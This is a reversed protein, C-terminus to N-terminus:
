RRALARARADRGAHGRSRTTSASSPTTTSRTSPMAECRPRPATRSRRRRRSTPPRRDGLGRELVAPDEAVLAEDRRRPRRSRRGALDDGARLDVGAAEGLVVADEVVDQGLDGLGQLLGRRSPVLSAWWSWCTTRRTTPRQTLSAQPAARHDDRHDDLGSGTSPHAGPADTWDPRSRPSTSRASGTSQRDLGRRRRCRGAAAERDDRMGRRGRAASGHRAAAAALDGPPGPAPCAIGSPVRGRGPSSVPVSRPPRGPRRPRAARRGRPALERSWAGVADAAPVIRRSTRRAVDHGLAQRGRRQAVARAAGVLGARPPQSRHSVAGSPESRCATCRRGTRRRGYAPRARGAGCAGCAARRADVRGAPRLGRRAAGAPQRQRQPGHAARPDPTRGRRRRCRRAADPSRRGRGRGPGAGRRGPGPGSRGPSRRRRGRTTPGPRCPRAVDHVRDHGAREAPTASARRRQESSSTPTRSSRCGSRLWALPRSPMPSDVSVTRRRPDSARRRGPQGAWRVAGVRHPSAPPMM